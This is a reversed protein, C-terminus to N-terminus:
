LRRLREGTELDFVALENQESGVLARKGDSSVDHVRVYKTLFPGMSASLAGTDLDFVLAQHAGGGVVVRNGHRAGVSRIQQAGQRAISESLKPNLRVARDGDEDGFVQVSRVELSPAGMGEPEVAEEGSSPAIIPLSDAALQAEVNDPYIELALEYDARAGELDNSRERAKGRILAVEGWAPSAALLRTAEAIVRKPKGSNRRLEELTHQDAASKATMHPRLHAVFAEFAKANIADWACDWYPRLLEARVGTNMWRRQEPFTPDITDPGFHKGPITIHIRDGRHACRFRFTGAGAFVPNKEPLQRAEIDWPLETVGLPDTQSAEREQPGVSGTLLAIIETHQYLTALALADYGGKNQITKDAGANVLLSVVDTHGAPVASLLATAGDSNKLDVKVGATLLRKVVETMGRLAAMQLATGRGKSRVKMDAGAELLVTAMAGNGTFLAWMFPTNGSISDVPDVEAGADLLLQVIDPRDEPGGVACFLASSDREARRNPDAGCEVLARAAEFASEACASVLPVQDAGEEGNPSVGGAVLARVVDAHDSRAARLLARAGGTAGAALLPGIISGHGAGAAAWLPQGFGKVFGNPDAGAALGALADETRGETVAEMFEVPEMVGSAQPNVLTTRDNLRWHQVESGSALYIDFGDVAIAHCSGDGTNTEAVLAGSSQSWVRLTHAGAAYVYEGSVALAVVADADPQQLVRSLTFDPREYVRITGDRSATFLADKTLCVATIPLSHGELKVRVAKNTSWRWLRVPGAKRPGASYAGCALEGDTDFANLNKRLGVEGEQGLEDNWRCIEGRYEGTYLRDGRVVLHVVGARPLSLRAPERSRTDWLTVIGTGQAAVALRTGWIAIDTAPGAIHGILSGDDTQSVRVPEGVAASYLRGDSVALATIEHQHRIFPPSRMM